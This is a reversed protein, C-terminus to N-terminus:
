YFVIINFFFDLSFFVRVRINPGPGNENKLEPFLDSRFIGRYFLIVQFQHALEDESSDDLGLDVILKYDFARLIRDPYSMTDRDMFLKRFADRVHKGGKTIWRVLHEQFPLLLLPPNELGPTSIEVWDV